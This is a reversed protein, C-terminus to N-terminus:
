ESDAECVCVVVEGSGQELDRPPECVEHTGPACQLLSDDAHAWDAVMTVCTIISAILFFRTAFRDFMYTM